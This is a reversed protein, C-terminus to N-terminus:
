PLIETLQGDEIKFVLYQYYDIQQGDITKPLWGDLSKAINLLQDTISKHFDRAEYNEDAGIVRFRDTKGKCNVVFRIRLWGSEKKAKQTDYQDRITRELTYKEGEYELGQSDNFYQKIQSDDTCLEFDPNDMAADFEIDGVWRLYTNETSEITQQPRTCTALSIGLLLYLFHLPNPRKTLFHM